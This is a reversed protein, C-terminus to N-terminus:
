NICNKIDSTTANKNDFHIMLPDLQVCAYRVIDPKGENYYVYLTARQNDELVQFEVHYRKGTAPNILINYEDEYIKYFEDVQTINRLDSINHLKHREAIEAMDSDFQARENLIVFILFSSISVLVILPIILNKKNMYVM